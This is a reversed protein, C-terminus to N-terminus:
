GEGLSALAQMQPVLGQFPKLKKDGFFGANELWDQVKNNRFIAILLLILAVILGVMFGALASTVLLLVASAISALGLIVHAAFVSYHGGKWDESADWFCLAAGVLGGVAGLMKGAGTLWESTSGFRLSMFKFQGSLKMAGFATKEVANGALEFGGGVLSTVTGGYWNLAQKAKASGKAEAYEKFAFRATVAMLIMGVVGGKVEGNAIKGAMDHLADEMVQPEVLQSIEGTNLTRGGKAASLKVAKQKDILVVGRFSGPKEDLMRQAASVYQNPHGGLLTSLARSLKKAAQRASASTHLDLLQLDPNAEHAVAGLLGYLMRTPLKGAIRAATSTVEEGLVNVVGASVQYIYRAIGNFVEGSNGALILGKYGDYVKESIEALTKAAESESAKEAAAETWKEILKSQNLAFGRAVLAEPKAPHQKIAEVLHKVVATRGGSQHFVTGLVATYSMGSDIDHTDFNHTFYHLFPKSEVWALFSKDLSDIHQAAFQKLEKAYGGDPKLEDQQAKENFLTAYHKDWEAQGIIDAQEEVEKDIRANDAAVAAEARQVQDLSAPIGYSNAGEGLRDLGDTWFKRWSAEKKVAGHMVAEKLAAITLATEHKWKRIPEEAFEATFQLALGNLEMAIGAPDDLAVMGPYLPKASQAARQQLEAALNADAFLPTGSFAWAASAVRGHRAVPKGAAGPLLDRILSSCMKLAFCADDTDALLQAPDTFPTPLLKKVYPRSQAAENQPTTAYEAVHSGLDALKAAHPQSAGARLAAVDIRRMHAERYSASAHEKLVRQTWLVDSFGLWIHKAHAADDVTICRAIAEDGQRSCSFHMQQWGGSPADVYPNFPYLYGGESVQYASWGRAGYREDYVYLYGARLLRMTYHAQKDPLAIDSVGAGFPAVLKPAHGIDSRAVAYRVPLIALGQKDCYPCVKKVPGVTVTPTM